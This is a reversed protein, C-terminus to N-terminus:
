FGTTQSTTHPMPFVEIRSFHGFVSNKRTRIKRYESWFFSRIQVSKVCHKHKKGALFTYKYSVSVKISIYFSSLTKLKRPIMLNVTEKRTCETKTKGTKYYQDENM